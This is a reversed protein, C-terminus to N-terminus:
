RAHRGRRDPPGLDIVEQAFRRLTKPELDLQLCIWPLSMLPPDDLDDHQANFLYDRAENRHTTVASVMDLIAREMVCLLLGKEAKQPDPLDEFDPIIYGSLSLKHPEETESRLAM